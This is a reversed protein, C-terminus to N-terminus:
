RWRILSLRNKRKKRMKKEQLERDIFYMSNAISNIRITRSKSKDFCLKEPFISGILMRKQAASAHLFLQDLKSFRSVCQNVVCKVHLDTKPENLTLQNELEVITENTIKKIEKYDTGDIDGILLLNRVNKLRQHQEEIKDSLRKRQDIGNKFSNEVMIKLTHQYAEKTGGKLSFKRLEKM